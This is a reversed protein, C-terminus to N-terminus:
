VIPLLSATIFFYKSIFRHRYSYIIEAIYTAIKKKENMFGYIWSLNQHVLNTKFRKRSSKFCKRKCNRKDNSKDRMQTIFTERM